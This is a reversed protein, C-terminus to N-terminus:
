LFGLIYEANRTIQEFVELSTNLDNQCLVVQEVKAFQHVRYLGHVDRGASGAERRFCNSIGALYVPREVSIVENAFYSVLPVESTGVLWKEDAPLHYTQDEGTPFFGTNLLAEERLLIPVDMVTFGRNSLLDIVLQQVARHLHLGANKLFYGRSGSVKVGRPIDLLNLRQALTIHDMPEFDFIPPTGVRKIEVNDADSKGVPTDPSALNPILFMLQKFRENIEALKSDYDALGVNLDRVGDKLMEAEDNKGQLLLMAIKASAKNRQNRLSEVSRLTKLREADIQILENVQVDIGKQEAVQQIAQTNERIFKIDLM